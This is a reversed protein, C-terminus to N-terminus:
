WSNQIGFVLQEETELQPGDLDQTVPVVYELAFRWGDLNHQGAINLGLAVDTRSVGQRNPDATQVPAMILPDIGSINGRDYLQVRLSASVPESLLFSLWGTVRTEDGLQYGEDNDSVRFTSRWQAGWAWRDGFGSYSVGIIPDYSGSGLQMPYPLRVLPQMNMPTLIQGAEDTSGTPLSVGVIAHVRANERDLLRFLGSVSTDGWGTTATNFNGLVNTGMGGRYTVHDMDKELYNAMIMLTIRDTPAVMMGLMHMDMSMQFPVVRLTPPMGPNGFFRNAETTAITDPSIDSSGQLNSQMDMSMYRYSLMWEGKKHFHEAMVGIPAHTDARTGDALVVQAACGACVALLAIFANKM